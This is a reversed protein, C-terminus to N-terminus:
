HSYQQLQIVSYLLRKSPGIGSFLQMQATNMAELERYFHIAHQGRILYFTFLKCHIAIGVNGDKETVSCHTYSHLWDQELYLAHVTKLAALKMVM